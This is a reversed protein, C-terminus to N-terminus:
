ATPWIRRARGRTAHEAKAIDIWRYLPRNRHDYGAPELYVRQGEPGLYGRERWNSVAAVSVGAISAADTTSLLSELTERAIPVPLSTRGLRLLGRRRALRQLPEPM